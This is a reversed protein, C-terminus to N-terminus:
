RSKVGRREQVRRKGRKLDRIKEERSNEGLRNKERRKEERRM